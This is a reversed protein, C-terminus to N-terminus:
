VGTRRLVTLACDPCTVTGRWEPTTRETTVIWAGTPQVDTYAPAEGPRTNPGEGVIWVLDASHSCGPCTLTEPSLYTM